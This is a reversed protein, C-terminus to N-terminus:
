SILVHFKNILSLYVTIQLSVKKSSAITGKRPKQISSNSSSSKRPSKQSLRVASGLLSNTPRSTHSHRAKEERRSSQLQQNFSRTQIPPAVKNVKRIMTASHTPTSVGAKQISRQNRKIPSPGDVTFTSISSNTVKSADSMSTYTMDDDSFSHQFRRINVTRQPNVYNQNEDISVTRSRSIEPSVPNPQIGYIASENQLEDVLHDPENDYNDIQHVPAATDIKKPREPKPKKKSRKSRRERALQHMSPKLVPAVYTDPLDKKRSSHDLHHDKDFDSSNQYNHLESSRDVINEEDESYFQKVPSLKPDSNKKTPRQRRDKKSFKYGLTDYNSMKPTAVTEKIGESEDVNLSLRTKDQRPSRQTRRNIIDEAAAELKDMRPADQEHDMATLVDELTPPQTTANELSTKQNGPLALNQKLLKAAKATSKTSANNRSNKLTSNKPLIFEDETMLASSDALGPVIGNDATNEDEEEDSSPVHGLPPDPVTQFFSNEFPDSSFATEFGSDWKKEDMLPAASESQELSSNESESPTRHNTAGRTNYDQDAHSMTFFTPDTMASVDDTPYSNRGKQEEEGSFEYRRVIDEMTKFDDLAEEVEPYSEVPASRRPPSTHHKEEYSSKPQIPSRTQASTFIPSFSKTSSTVTDNKLKARDVKM